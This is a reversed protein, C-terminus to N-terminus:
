LSLPLKTIKSLLAQMLNAFSNNKPSHTTRKNNDLSMIKLKVKENGKVQM